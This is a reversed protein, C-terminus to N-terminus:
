SIKVHSSNLRTSKRDIAELDFTAPKPVFLGLYAFRQRTEMDLLDTSRKLLTAVTPTTERAAGLMDSPAQAELIGAGSRLEELLERVGWGLRAESHLLR